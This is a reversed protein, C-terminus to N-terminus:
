KKVAGPHLFLTVLWLIVCVVVVSDAVNFTPWREFGFIGYFKVSIFDVVGSRGGPPVIRDSINGLGGGIIGTIAWRQVRTWEDSKFYYVTLLLLVLLPVAIFLVPRIFDPLGSGLSFAIVNNRVHILELFGNNFVDKIFVYNAGDSIPYNRVIFAKSLKDALIALVTLLFPMGKEFFAEKTIKLMIGNHVVLPIKDVPAASVRRMGFALIFPAWPATKAKIGQLELLMNLQKTM